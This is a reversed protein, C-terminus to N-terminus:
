AVCHGAFGHSALIDRDHFAYKKRAALEIIATPQRSSDVYPCCSWGFLLMRICDTRRKWRKRLHRSHTSDFFTEAIRHDIRNYFAEGLTKKRMRHQIRFVPWLLMPYAKEAATFDDFDLHGDKGLAQQTLAVVIERPFIANEGHISMLFSQLEALELYGNKNADSMHFVQEIMETRTSLCCGLLATIWAAFDPRDNHRDTTHERVIMDFMAQLFQSRPEHVFSFFEDIEITGSHDTDILCFKDFLTQLEDDTLKWRLIIKSLQPTLQYHLRQRRCCLWGHVFPM